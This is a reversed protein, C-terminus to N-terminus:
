WSAPAGCRERCGRPVDLHDVIISIAARDLLAILRLANSPNVPYVSAKAKMMKASSAASEKPAQLRVCGATRAPWYEPAGTIRMEISVTRASLSGSYPYAAPDVGTSSRRPRSPMTKSSRYLWQGNVSGECEDSSM